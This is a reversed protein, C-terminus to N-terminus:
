KKEEKSSRLGKVFGQLKKFFGTEPVESTHRFPLIDLNSCILDSVYNLFLWGRSFNELSPKLVEHNMKDASILRSMLIPTGMTTAIPPAIKPTSIGNESTSSNAGNM